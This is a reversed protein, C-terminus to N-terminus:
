PSGMCIHISGLELRYSRSGSVAIPVAHDTVRLRAGLLTAEERQSFGAPRRESAARALAVILRLRRPRNNVSLCGNGSAYYFEVDICIGSVSTALTTESTRALGCHRSGLATTSM